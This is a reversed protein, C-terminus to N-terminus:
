GAVAGSGIILESASSIIAIDRGLARAAARPPVLRPCFVPSM